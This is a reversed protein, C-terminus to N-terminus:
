LVIREGAYCRALFQKHADAHNAVAWGIARAKAERATQSRGSRLFETAKTAVISEFTAAPKTIPAGLTIREGAATRQLYARHAQPHHHVAWQIAKATSNLEQAKTAVLHEFAPGSHGAAFLGSPNAAPEDVLDASYIEACRAFRVAGRQESVGSFSISLGFSQPATEAIELVYARHPSTKLLHLDGRLSRGEIRLGRLTGLIDGAGSGHNLKVKLGGSYAAACSRVQELTTADVQLGHGKAEGMTIVACGYIVGLNSDIRGPAATTSLQLRTSTM